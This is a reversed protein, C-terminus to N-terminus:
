RGPHSVYRGVCTATIEKAGGPEQNAFDNSPVGIITLGLAHYTEHLEQLGQYQPTFGCKSATNVIMLVRGDFQKLPLSAGNLASFAFDFASEKNVIAGNVRSRPRDTDTLTQPRAFLMSLANAADRMFTSKRSNKPLAKVGFLCQAIMWIRMEETVNQSECQTISWDRDAETTASKIRNVLESATQIQVRADEM